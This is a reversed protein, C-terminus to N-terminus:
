AAPAGTPPPLDRGSIAEVLRILAMWVGIGAAVWAPGLAAAMNWWLPYQLMFTTTGRRMQIQMAETLKLAVMVLVVALAAEAVLRLWRLAGAPLRDTLVEVTAHGATIQCWGLFAFVCFAMAAEVLEYDGRVPGIGLGLLWGALGPLYQRALDSHLVSTAARGLVSLCIMGVMALLVVGGLIALAQALRTVGHHLRPLM